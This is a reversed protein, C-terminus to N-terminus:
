NSLSLLRVHNVGELTHSLSDSWDLPKQVVSVWSGLFPNFKVMLRVRVARGFEQKNGYADHDSLSVGIKRVWDSTPGVTTM